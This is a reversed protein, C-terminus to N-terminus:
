FDQQASQSTGVLAHHTGGIIEDCEPCNAKQMAGGCEGIFYYHGRSCKYAHKPTLGLANVMTLLLDASPRTITYMKEYKSVSNELERLDLSLNPVEIAHRLGTCLNELPHPITVPRTCKFLELQSKVTEYQIVALPLVHSIGTEEPPNNVVYIHNHITLTKADTLIAVVLQQSKGRSYGASIEPIAGFYEGPGYAQGARRKTDFGECCISPIGQESTGHFAFIIKKDHLQYSPPFSCSMVGRLFRARAGCHTDLCPNRIYVFKSVLHRGNSIINKVFEEAKQHLMEFSIPPIEIEENKMQEQMEMCKPNQEFISACIADCQQLLSGCFLRSVDDGTPPSNHNKNVILNHVNKTFRCYRALGKEVINTTYSEMVNTALNVWRVENHIDDMFSNGRLKDLVMVVRQLTIIIAPSLNNQSSFKHLWQARKEHRLSELRKFEKEEKEFNQLLIKFSNGTGKDNENPPRVKDFVLKTFYKLENESIQNGSLKKLCRLLVGFYDDFINKREVSYKAMHKMAERIDLTREKIVSGRRCFDHASITARCIPCKIVQLTKIGDDDIGEQADIAEELEGVFFIHGCKLEALRLEVQDESLECDEDTIRVNIQSKKDMLLNSSIAPIELLKYLVVVLDEDSDCVTGFTKLRSWPEYEEHAGQDVLNRFCLVCFSPCPEGCMGACPHGCRPLRNKCPFDCTDRDCPQHCELECKIHPCKWACPEHCLYTSCNTCKHSLREKKCDTHACRFDCNTGCPECPTGCGHSGCIHGCLLVRDCKQSCQKHVPLLNSSLSFGGQPRCSECTGSCQHGCNLIAECPVNCFPKRDDVCKKEATHGCSSLKIMQTKNCDHKEDNHCKKICPHGCTLIKSCIEDCIPWKSNDHKASCMFKGSHGCPLTGNVMQQCKKADESHNEDVNRHCSRVCRHGCSMVVECKNKCKMKLLSEESRWEHCEASISHQCVPHIDEVRAICKPIKKVQEDCCLISQSADCDSCKVEVKEFCDGCQVGCSKNCPHQCLRPPICVAGVRECKQGCKKHIEIYPHCCQRCNHGCDLLSGCEKRCGGNPGIKSNYENPNRFSLDTKHLNCFAPFSTVITKNLQCLRLTEDWLENKKTKHNAICAVNGVIYMARRARSLAVCARNEVSLFGLKDTRVLSLIIYDSEEGQYDDLTRILCSLSDSKRDNFRLDHKKASSFVQMLQGSYPVLITVSSERQQLLYKAITVVLNAEFVNFPSKMNNNMQERSEPSHADYNIFLVRADNLIGRPTARNFTSPHDIIEVSQDGINTDRMYYKKTYQSIEPHMRRQTDLTIFKFRETSGVNMKVMREMLSVGLGKKTELIYEQVKPKLQRHDGILVLHQLRKTLCVLVHSELVEAAEEVVIIKNGIKEIIPMLKAAMTTTVGIIRKTSLLMRLNDDEFQKIQEHLTECLKFSKHLKDCLRARYENFYMMMLEERQDATSSDIMGISIKEMWSERERENYGMRVKVSHCEGESVEDLDSVLERDEMIRQGEIRELEALEDENNLVTFPDITARKDSLVENEVKLISTPQLIPNPTGKAVRWEELPHKCNKISTISSLISEIEDQLEHQCLSLKIKEDVSNCVYSIDNDIKKLQVQLKTSQLTLSELEKLKKEFKSKKKPLKKANNVRQNAERISPIEENLDLNCMLHLDETQKSISECLKDIQQRLEFKIQQPNIQEKTKSKKKKGRKSQNQQSSGTTLNQTQNPVQNGSSKLIYILESEAKELELHSTNLYTREILYQDWFKLELDHAEFDKLRKEIVLQCNKSYNMIQTFNQVPNEVNDLTKADITIGVSRLLVTLQNYLNKLENIKKERFEKLKQFSQIQLEVEELKSTIEKHDNELDNLSNQLHHIEADRGRLICDVDERNEESLVDKFKHWIAETIPDNFNRKANNIEDILDKVM